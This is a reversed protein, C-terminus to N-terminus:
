AAAGRRALFDALSARMGEPAHLGLKSRRWLIDDATVAWEHAALYEVERESLGAGLDRGLDDLGRAGGLVREIRSGYAHAMREVTAAPLFALRRRQEALFRGFAAGGLDGGPVTGRATWAPGMGQLHPALKELAHEALRRFTTIKGGYISLLPALGAGNELKLVYDRTVASPNDSQDDFLPRVGAYSWKVDAPAPPHQFWQGVAECLYATEDPSIAVKAPDGDFPVDTTGILSFRGEYPIVFVIRRDRNQLIYAHDGDYLRPVVIHSGKVLRPPKADNRGVVQGLVNGVWPGAANVM